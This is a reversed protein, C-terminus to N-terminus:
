SEPEEVSPLSTVIPAAMSGTNPRVGITRTALPVPKFTVRRVRALMVLAALRMVGSLGFIVYYSERVPGLVGLLAGGILAGGVLALANALNFTTLVSTRESEDIREFLLLFTSLEYGAWIAGGLIQVCLLYPIENSVIWLASLPVIGIGSAYLLRQSGFRRAIAGLFPSM